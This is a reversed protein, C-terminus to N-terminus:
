LYRVKDHRIMYEWLKQETVDENIYDKNLYRNWIKMDKESDLPTIRTHWGKPCLQKFYYHERATGIGHIHLKDYCDVEYRFTDVEFGKRAALLIWDEYEQVTPYHTNVIATFAYSTKM